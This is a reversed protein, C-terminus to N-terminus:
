HAPAKRPDANGIDAAVKWAGDPQRRWVTLYKGTHVAPKGEADAGTAEWTGFTYGLDGSAALFAEQPKWTLGKPSFGTRTYYDRIKGLGVIVPEGAPFIAADPAFHDLWGDVGRSAADAGFVAEAKLLAEKGERGESGRAALLAGALVVALVVALSSLWSKM